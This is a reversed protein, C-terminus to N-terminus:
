KILIQIHRQYRDAFCFIDKFMYINSVYACRFHPFNIQNIKYLCSFRIQFHLKMCTQPRVCTSFFGISYFCCIWESSDPILPHFFTKSSVHHVMEMVLMRISFRIIFAFLLQFALLSNLFKILHLLHQPM